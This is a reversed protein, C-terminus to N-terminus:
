LIVRESFKLLDDEGIESIKDRYIENVILKFEGKDIKDCFDMYMSWLTPLRRATDHSDMIVRRRLSESDLQSCARFSLDDDDVWLWSDLEETWKSSKYTFDDVDSRVGWPKWYGSYLLEGFIGGLDSMHKVKSFEGTTKKKGGSFSCSAQCGKSPNLEIFIPSFDIDQVFGSIAHGFEHAINLKKDSM